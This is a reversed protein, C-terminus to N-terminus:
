TTPPRWRRSRTWTIAATPPAGNAKVGYVKSSRPEQLLALELSASLRTGAGFRAEVDAATEVVVPTNVAADGGNSEGVVAIVGPARQAVPALGSTDINVEVFPYAVAM